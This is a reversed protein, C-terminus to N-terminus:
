PRQVGEFDELAADLQTQAAEIDRHFDRYESVNRKQVAVKGQDLVTLYHQLGADVKSDFETFRSAPPALALLDNALCTSEGHYAVFDERFEARSSFRRDPWRLEFDHTMSELRDIGRGLARLYSFTAERPSAAAQTPTPTVCEPATPLNSGGGCAAVLPAVLVAAALSAFARCLRM